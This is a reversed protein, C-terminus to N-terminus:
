AGTEWVQSVFSVFRRDQEVFAECAAAGARYLEPLDERVLREALGPVWSAVCCDLFRVQRVMVNRAERVDGGQWADAERGCLFALYELEVSLHDPAGRLQPSLALGASAYERELRGCLAAVAEPDGGLYFSGRLLSSLDPGGRGAFGREYVERLTQASRLGELERLLRQWAPFFPFGALVAEGGLATAAERLGSIREETPLLFVEALFRYVAQRVRALAKM